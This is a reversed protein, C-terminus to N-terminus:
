FEGGVPPIAPHDFVEALIPKEIAERYFLIADKEAQIAVSLAEREGLDRVSADPVDAILAFVGTTVLSHLYQRAEEDLAWAAPSMEGSLRNHQESFTRFHEREEEAMEHFLRKTDESEVKKVMGEYFGLGEEEMNMAVKLAETDSLHEIVM